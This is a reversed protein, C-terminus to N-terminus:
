AASATRSSSSSHWSSTPTPRTAEWPASALGVLEFDEGALETNEGVRIGNQRAFALDVVAEGEQPSESLYRGRTAQDPTVRALGPKRVDVGSVTV